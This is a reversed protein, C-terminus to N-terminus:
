GIEHASTADFGRERLLQAIVPSLDEDLHVKV